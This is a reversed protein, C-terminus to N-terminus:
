YNDLWSLTNFRNGPEMKTQAAAIEESYVRRQRYTLVLPATARQRARQGKRSRKDSQRNEQWLVRDQGKPNNSYRTRAM